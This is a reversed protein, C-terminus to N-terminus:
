RGPGFPLVVGVGLRGWWRSLRGRSEGAVIVDVPRLDGGGRVGLYGEGPGARLVARAEIGASPTWASGAPVGADRWARHGVGGVVGVALWPRPRVLTTAWLDVRHESYTREIGVLPALAGIGAGLEFQWGPPAVTAAVEGIPVVGVGVASGVAVGLRAGPVVRPAPDVADLDLPPPPRPVTAPAPEAPAVVVAQPVPPPEVPLPVAPEPPAPEVAPIAVPGPTSPTRPSRTAIPAPYRAVPSDPSPIPPPVAAPGVPLLPTLLSSALWAVESRGAEDRPAAVSVTRTGGDALLTWTAVGVIVRVCAGGDCALAIGALAAVDRWQALNEAPPLAIGPGAVALGVAWLSM